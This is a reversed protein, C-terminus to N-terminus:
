DETDDGEWEDCGDWDDTEPWADPAGSPRSPLDCRGTICARYALKTTVTWHRCSFCDRGAGPSPSPSASPSPSPPGASPSATPSPSVSPSTAPGEGGDPENTRTTM